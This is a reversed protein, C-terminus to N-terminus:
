KGLARICMKQSKKKKKEKEEGGLANFAIDFCLNFLYISFDTPMRAHSYNHMLM